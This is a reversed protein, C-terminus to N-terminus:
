PFFDVGRDFAGGLLLELSNQAVGVRGIDGGVEVMIRMGRDEMGVLGFDHVARQHPDQRPVVIFPAEGVAHDIGGDRHALQASSLKKTMFNRLRSSASTFPLRTSTRTSKLTGICSPSTASTDRMPPFAGVMVSIASRPPLTIM